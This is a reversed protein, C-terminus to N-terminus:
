KKIQNINNNQRYIELAALFAKKNQEVDYRVIGTPNKAGFPFVVYAGVKGPLDFLKEGDATLGGSSELLINYGACQYFHNPYVEKASKFDVIAITGDKLIAGADAIGGLWLDRSFCHAESFIFKDVYKAAWESFIKVADKEDPSFAIPIITGTNMCEKVFEELNEHMKSGKTASKKLSTSHNSYSKDILALYEEDSLEKIKSHTESSIKLREEKSIFKANTWGFPELAKSSAWWSLQKSLVDMVSSVGTLPIEDLKHLHEEEEFKYQMTKLKQKQEM